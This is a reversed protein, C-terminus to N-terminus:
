RKLSDKYVRGDKVIVAFNKDPDALLSVYQLPNGDVLIFDALAGEKIVGLEGPYPDRPGCLKLLDANDHTALKLVEFASFWRAMKALQKGQKRCLEPDFLTDTGWAIKVKERRAMRIVLDTGNTVKLFKRQNESGEAFPIADEDNLIPQMSLWINRKALLKITEESMLHGHEICKVGAEIAQRISDDTFAHVTVYTNWSNAVEVIAKLEELTYQTTDIPDYFSSVGGGAMVKIQTAGMRLAERTRRIVEPKGDAILTVGNREFYSLERGLQAPVDNVGRFDGHGSTQSIYPGSPYIRPGAIAGEDIAKKLGFVNGGVDRVTTFGRLLTAEAQQGAVINMYAIDSSLLKSQPISAFLFHWHNDILGPILTRGGGDILYVNDTQVVTLPEASIKEIRNEKVLLHMDAKLQAHQGDFISVNSILLMSPFESNSQQAFTPRNCAILMVIGLTVTVAYQM